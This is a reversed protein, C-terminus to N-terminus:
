PRRYTGARVCQWHHNDCLEEMKETSFSPVVRQVTRRSGYPNAEAEWVWAPAGEPLGWEELTGTDDDAEEWSYSTILLPAGLQQLAHQITPEWSAYGWLGPQFCVSLDAAPLPFPPSSVAEHYLGHLYQVTLECREGAVAPPSGVTTARSSACGVEPGCLVLHLSTVGDRALLRRLLEFVRATAGPSSGEKREQAGLVYVCLTTTRPLLGLRWAGLWVTLSRSAADDGEGGGPQPIGLEAALGEAAAWGAAGPARLPELLEM